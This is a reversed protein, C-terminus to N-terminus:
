RNLDDSMRDPRRYRRLILYKEVIYKMVLNFWLIYISLPILNMFILSMGIDKLLICYKYALDMDPGGYIENTEKQGMSDSVNRRQILRYLHWIDFLGMLPPLIANSILLYSVSEVLGGKQYKELNLIKKVVITIIATNIFMAITLKAILQSNYKSRSKRKEQETYKQLEWFLITNVFCIMSSISYQLGVRFPHDHNVIWENLYYLGLLVLFSIGLLIITNIITKRRQSQKVKM